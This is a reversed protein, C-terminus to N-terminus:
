AHYICLKQHIFSRCFSIIHSPKTRWFISNPTSKCQARHSGSCIFELMKKGYTLLRFHFCTFPVPTAAFPHAAGSVNRHELPKEVFTQTGLGFKWSNRLWIVAQFLWITKVEASLKNREGSRENKDRTENEYKMKYDCVMWEPRENTETRQRQVPFQTRKKHSVWMPPYLCCCCWCCVLFLIDHMSYSIYSHRAFIAIRLHWMQVCIFQIWSKLIMIIRITNRVIYGMWCGYAVSWVSAHRRCWFLPRRIPIHYWAYGRKGMKRQWHGWCGERTYWKWNTDIMVM